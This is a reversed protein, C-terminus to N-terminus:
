WNYKFIYEKINLNRIKPLRFTLAGKLFTQENNLFNTSIVPILNSRYILFKVRSLQSMLDHPLKM